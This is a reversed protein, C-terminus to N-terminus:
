EPKAPRPAMSVMGDPPANTAPSPAFGIDDLRDGSDRSATTIADCLIVQHAPPLMSRGHILAAQWKPGREWADIWADLLDHHRRRLALAEILTGAQHIDKDRKAQGHQDGRRRTAVILKHLAYREPAPVRVPVGAKHLLVSRAPNHILYDLFRLPVAAAGGLAPMLTPKGQHHEGARNPTLFEVEVDRARYKASFRGDMPHPVEQFSEEVSRLVDLIPPLSDDVLLSISHFQAVDIDSTALTQMPLLVGILGAYTQFAVTGVLVCRLRFAGARALAEVVDGVLPDPTPLGAARLANVMRRRDRFSAKIQHFREVRRTIAEERAPGVYTVSKAGTQRNYGNYYWYHQGNRERKSFSGNEAYLEDFAADLSRQEVEAFMTQLPLSIPNLM